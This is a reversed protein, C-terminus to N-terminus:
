PSLDIPYQRWLLVDATDEAGHGRKNSVLAAPVFEQHEKDRNGQGEKYDTPQFTATALRSLGFRM